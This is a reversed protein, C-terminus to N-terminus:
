RSLNGLKEKLYALFKETRKIAQELEQRNTEDTIEILLTQGSLKKKERDKKEKETCYHLYAKQFGVTIVKEKKKEDDKVIEFLQIYKSINGESYGTIVAIEKQKIDRIKKLHYISEAVELTNLDDRQLNEILAIETLDVESLVEDKVICPIKERGLQKFAKFRRHGAVILYNKGSQKVIIPQILGKEKISEALATIKEPNYDKRPQNIDENIQTLSIEKVTNLINVPIETPLSLDPKGKQESQKKALLKNLDAM